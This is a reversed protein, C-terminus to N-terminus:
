TIIKADSLRKPDLEYLQEVICKIDPFPKEKHLMVQNHQRLCQDFEDKIKKCLSRIEESSIYPTQVTIRENGNLWIGRGPISPLDLADKTGLMTLSGHLTNVQFCMRASINEQITTDITEKTVKQTALILHIRAARGLKAISDTLERARDYLDENGDYNSRKGYLVSAEDIAVVIPSKIDRKADISRFGNSELYHFRVKMELEVLELINVADEVTKVVHVNPADKFDSFELGGKLDILYMQYPDERPVLLDRLVQRFFVSKGGGTTGAILLHPLKNMEARVLGNESEGVFFEDWTLYPEIEELARVLVRNPLNKNNLKVEILSPNRGKTISSIRKRFLAELQSRKAEFKELGLSSASFLLDERHQDIVKSHILKPTKGFHDVLGIAEFQRTLQMARRYNKLGVFFCAALIGSVWLVLDHTYTPFSVLWRMIGGSFVEPWLWHLFRLHYDGSAVVWTLLSWIILPVGVLAPRRGSIKIIELLGKSAIIGGRFIVQALNEIFLVFPDSGKSSQHTSKSIRLEKPKL